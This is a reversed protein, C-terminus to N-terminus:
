TLQFKSADKIESQISNFNISNKLTSDDFERLTLDIWRLSLMKISFGYLINDQLYYKKLLGIALQM